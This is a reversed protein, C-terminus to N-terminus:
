WLTLKTMISESVYKSYELFTYLYQSLKMVSLKNGIDLGDSAVNIVASATWTKRRDRARRMMAYVLNATM